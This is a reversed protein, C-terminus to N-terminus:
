LNPMRPLLKTVELVTPGGLKAKYTYIHRLLEETAEPSAHLTVLNEGAEKMGGYLMAELVPSRSCLVFKHAPFTRSGATISVDSMRKNFLFGAVVEQM